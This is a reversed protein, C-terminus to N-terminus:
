AIELIFKPDGQLFQLTTKVLGKRIELKHTFPFDLVDFIQEVLAREADSRLTEAMSLADLEKDSDQQSLIGAEVQAARSAAYYASFDEDSMMYDHSLKTIVGSYDRRDNTAWQADYQYANDAFLKERIPIVIERVTEAYAQAKLLTQAFPYLESRRTKFTELNIM